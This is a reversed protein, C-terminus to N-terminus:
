MEHGSMMMHDHMLKAQVGKGLAQVTFPVTIPGAKSFRLTIEKKDDIKLPEKVGFIMLHYGGQALSVSQGPLLPIQKVPSMQMIGDPSAKVMHLEIKTAWTAQAAILADGNETPNKITVYGAAIKAPTERVIAESFQYPAATPADAAHANFSFLAFAAFLLIKKMVPEKTPISAIIIAPLEFM